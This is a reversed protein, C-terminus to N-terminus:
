EAGAGSLVVPPSWLPLAVRSVVEVTDRVKLAGLMASYPKIGFESQAFRATADVRNGEGTLRLEFDITRTATGITLDGSILVTNGYVTATRSRFGIAAGRLIKTDITKVISTRDKDSLGSSGNLGWRVDLARSDVSLELTVHDGLVELTGEWRAADIVLDHGVSAMAGERATRIQLTGSAPGLAHRGNPLKMVRRYDQVLAPQVSTM